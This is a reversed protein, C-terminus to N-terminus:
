LNEYFTVCVGDLDLVTFEHTGWPTERLGGNPHITASAQIEDHLAALSQVKFRLMTQEAIPKANEMVSLHIQQGDRSVAGYIPPEGHCFDEVFGLKGVYFDLSARVDSTPLIPIAAIIEPKM